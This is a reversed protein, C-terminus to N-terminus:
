IELIIASKAPLRIETRLDFTKGSLVDKGSSVGSLMEHFRGM